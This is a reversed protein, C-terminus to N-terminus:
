SETYLYVTNSETFGGIVAEVSIQDAAIGLAQMARAVAEGYRAATALALDQDIDSKKPAATAILRFRVAAHGARARQVADKLRASFIVNPRNFRITMLPAPADEANAPATEASPPDPSASATTERDASSSSPNEGEEPEPSPLAPWQTGERITEALAALKQREFAALGRRQLLDDRGQTALMRAKRLAEEADKGSRGQVPDSVLAEFAASVDAVEELAAALAALHSEVEALADRAQQWQRRSAADEPPAGRGLRKELDARVDQYAQM